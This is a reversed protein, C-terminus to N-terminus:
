KSQAPQKYEFIKIEPIQASGANVKHSSSYILKYSELANLPVPSVLPDIGIINYAGQGQDSIFAQATDYSPFSHLGLIEKFKQGDPMQREQWGMVTVTQPTVQKGEFYYLRSIMSRYFEPYFVLLPTYGDGKKQWCLEYFDTEKRHSLNALAYFKDSPSAIRSDVIVYRSGWNKMQESSASEDQSTFYFEEGRPGTGPNSIPIRHSIRTVWYGYDNWATVGYATAPFAYGKGPAPTTYLAYYFDANGFPEATNNKMWDLAEMWADSPTHSPTKAMPFANISCSALTILSMIIVGATAYIQSTSIKRTRVAAKKAKKRPPTVPEAKTHRAFAEVAWGGLYGSLVALCVAFYTAFRIMAFATLMVILFWIAAFIKEPEGRRVATYILVAWGLLGSYLMLAYQAWAIELTFFGGPFFLPKMEGVVNQEMHWSFIFDILYDSGKHFIDPFILWGSLIGLLLISGVAALYYVPQIGRARMLISIVNLVIPVLIVAALSLLTIKDRSVPLFILLAILFCAIAIRTLYDTPIGRLHDSIFQVIFFIFIILVLLLAGQWTILYLGLFIGAIFSYPIQRSIPPSQQPKLISYTSQRGQKIALIFFLIFFATFVIEVVHHDTYGLLSRTLFEGPMMATLLVAIIGGWRNSLARAIFYVPIVALAGLVPPICVAITDVIQQTPSAGGLLRIIGAMVYAFFVPVNGIASGGPFINYPDFQMLNPFNRVLNDVLRMYYYADIGTLKIWQGHFVSSYPLVVRFYIAITCSVLLVLLTLAWEPFKARNLNYARESLDRNSFIREGNAM